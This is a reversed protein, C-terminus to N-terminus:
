ESGTRPVRIRALQQLGTDLPNLRLARRYFARALASNGGRAEFDGLVGLSAFDDPDLQLATLLQQHAGPRAGMTELASAELYHPTVAWPDLSAATRAASLEAAPRDILARAQQVYADSMFLMVVGAALAGLVGAVAARAGIPAPRRPGPPADFGSRVCPVAVRGTAIQATGIALALLGVSTLGPIRWIWDVASQGLLVAGTAILGVAHRRTQPDAGAWGAALVGTVGALFITFLAAGVVGDEALLSFVLSHPDDLNRDTARYRYYGASYNDAGMGTIPASDFERIAVRWLDYRQGGVSTYRTSTPTAANLDQFQHWKRHAFSIPNGVAVIGGALCGAVIVVLVVRAIGRLRLMAESNARLGSDLLALSFGIVFAVLSVVGAARAATAIDRATVYGHGADFAHFPRLLWHSALAVLLTLLGAVYARRVRDPALALAVVAGFVLGLLIGRSQTLFSLSLCLAALGLAAARLFRGAGRNAVAAIYPWVPLAFLLATANRYNIPGNLRGALFLSNDGLLLRVLVYLAIVGIGGSLAWGVLTLVRQSLPLLFPLTFIGAYLVLQSGAVFAPDPAAAWLMSLLSWIALGWIGALAVRVWPSSTSLRGHVGVTTILVALVFLTLPAWRSIGFAGQSVTAM